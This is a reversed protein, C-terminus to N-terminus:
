SAHATLYAVCGDITALRPYDRAPIAVGVREELEDAFSLFDVSDIEVYDRLDANPPISSIDAEPAVRRLITEVVRKAELADM